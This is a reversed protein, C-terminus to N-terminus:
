LDTAHVLIKSAAEKIKDVKAESLGKVKGLSRKTSMQVGQNNVLFVKITCIGAAKLKQIDSAGIGHSQLEDVNHISSDEDFETDLNITDRTAEHEIFSSNAENLESEM